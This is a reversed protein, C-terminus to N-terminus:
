AYVGNSLANQFIPQRGRLSNLEEVSLVHFDIILDHKIDIDTCIDSIERKVKWDFNDKLIILIDYDSYQHSRGNIQSGFLIVHVLDEGFRDILLKKLEGLILINKKKM